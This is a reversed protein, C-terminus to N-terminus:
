CAPAPPCHRTRASRAVRGRVKQAERARAVAARVQLARRIRPTAAPLLCAPLRWKSHACHLCLLLRPQLGVEAASMAPVHGLLQMSGPDYCPVVDKDPKKSPDHRAAM